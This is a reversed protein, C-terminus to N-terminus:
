PLSAPPSVRFSKTHMFRRLHLCFARGEGQEPRCSQEPRCNKEARSNKQEEEACAHQREEGARWSGIGVRQDHNNLAAGGIKIGSNPDVCPGLADVRQHEIVEEIAILMEVHRGRQGLAPFNGIGQGVYEVDPVAHLKVIAACECRAVYLPREVANRM